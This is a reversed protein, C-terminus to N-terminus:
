SQNPFTRLHSAGTAFRPWISRPRGCIKLFRAVDDGIREMAMQYARDSWHLPGPGFRKRLGLGPLLQNQVRPPIRDLIAGAEVDAQLSRLRGTDYYKGTGVNLKRTARKIRFAPGVGLFDFCRAMERHSDAQLDELFLILIQEDPFHRRYADLRKGYMSDATIAPLHELARELEFPCTVGWKVGSHHFERYSSEIRDIPDRAIFILRVEPYDGRLRKSAVQEYNADACWISGIGVTTDEPCAGLAREVIQRRPEPDDLDFYRYDKALPM